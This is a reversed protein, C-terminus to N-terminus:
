TKQGKQPTSLFDDLNDFRDEWLQRFGQTWEALEKMAGPVIRRPRRNADRGTTILGATELVKLHKSISPQSLDHPAALEAVTAEGELLRSLIARRTPDGLASFALDLQM